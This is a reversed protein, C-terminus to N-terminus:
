DDFDRIFPRMCTNVQYTLDIQLIVEDCTMSWGASPQDSYDKYGHQLIQNFTKSFKKALEEAKEEAEEASKAVVTTAYPVRFHAEVNYERKTMTTVQLYKLMM